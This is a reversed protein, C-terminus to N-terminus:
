DEPLAQIREKLIMLQNFFEDSLDDYALLFDLDALAEKKQGMQAFLIARNHRLRLASPHRKLGESAYHLAQAGDGQAELVYVMANYLDEFNGGRSLALEFAQAAEEYLTRNQYALGLYYPVDFRAVRKNLDELLQCAGEYDARRLRYIGEELSVEPEIRELASRLEEEVAPDPCAALARHYYADAKSYAGISENLQALATLTLPNDEEKQLAEELIHSAEKSFAQHTKSDLGEQRWLLDAFHVQAYLDDPNLMIAARFGILADVLRDSDLGNALSEQALQVAYAGPQSVLRNLLSRYAEAYLFHPDIGLNWVMGRAFFRFDVEESLQGEALGEVFDSRRIPFPVAPLDLKHRAKEKLELYALRDTFRRFYADLAM